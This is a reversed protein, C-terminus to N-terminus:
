LFFNEDLSQLGKQAIIQYMKQTPHVADWFVYKSPDDCTSMDKCTDGYEIIGTACCGKTCERLGYKLPHSVADQIANYCDLYATKLGTTTKMLILKQKIKSNFSFALKNYSEVCTNQNVLTKVLPMCGFPPVGVVVLRRAGLKYLTKAHSYLRSVLFNQYQELTFQKPRTPELYYNQLFDNTGMSVVFVANSVIEEAKKLGVFKSLHIKYHKFYVLQQPVSLVKSLNATLDDYGSGASAFSVGHLLDENNIKPDLFAPIANTFGFEDAIFDTALRGDCFRGTPLGNNFDKGYPHFNSKITTDLRNNNGSDVSSDGFVLICTVNNRTAIQKLQHIDLAESVLLLPTLALSLVLIKKMMMIMILLFSFFARNSLAKVVLSKFM